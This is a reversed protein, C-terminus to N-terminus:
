RCDGDDVPQPTLRSLRRLFGHSTVLVMGGIGASASAGGSKAVGKVALGAQEAERALKELHAVAPIDPDVLDLDPFQHAIRDADALGAYPDDPAVRAM